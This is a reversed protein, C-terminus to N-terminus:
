PFAEVPEAVPKDDVNTFTLWPRIQNLKVPGIGPVRQIDDISQFPGNLKRDAEIRHALTPGIGELQMWDIWTATNIDVSFYRQFAEGREIAPPHPRQAAILLWEVAICVVFVFLLLRLFRRDEGRVGTLWSVLGPTDASNSLTDPPVESPSAASTTAAASTAAASTAATPVSSPDGGSVAVAGTGSDVEQTGASEM